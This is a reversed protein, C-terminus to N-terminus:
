WTHQKGDINPGKQPMCPNEVKKIKELTTNSMEFLLNWRKRYFQQINEPTKM